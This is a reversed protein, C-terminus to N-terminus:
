DAILWTMGAQAELYRKPNRYGKSLLMIMIKTLTTTNRPSQGDTLPVSCRLTRRLISPASVFRGEQLPDRYPTTLSEM